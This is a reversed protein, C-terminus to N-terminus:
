GEADSDGGGQGIAKLRKMQETISPTVDRARRELGLQGMYRALADAIQQRQMVAPMVTKKRALVLSPQTLLWADLSDLILKTRVALEVVAVKQTSVVDAGGLDQLLDTRWRALAKGVSTRRDIVRGGLEKVAAKLKTLGAKEANRNGEPAGPGRKNVAM